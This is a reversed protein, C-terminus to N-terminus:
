LLSRLRTAIRDVLPRRPAHSSKPDHFGRLSFDMEIGERAFIEPVFREWRGKVIGTPTYPIIEKGSGHFRERNVCLVREDSRRRARRSGFVELHWASEHQRLHRRLIDTRWLAAQLAIRYKANRDVEWLLSNSTPHWPGSGGCEMIRIVDARGARMEDMLVELLDTQVSAELFYDDQLYLLYPQTIQDLCRM